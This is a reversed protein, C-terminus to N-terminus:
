VQAAAQVVQVAQAAARPQLQRALRVPPVERPQRPARTLVIATEPQDERLCRWHRQWKHRCAPVSWADQFLDQFRSQRGYMQLFSNMAATTAFRIQEHDERRTRLTPYIAATAVGSCAGLNLPSM